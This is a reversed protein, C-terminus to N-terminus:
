SQMKRRQWINLLRARERTEEKPSAQQATISSLSALITLNVARGLYLLKATVRQIFRKGEKDLPKSNDKTKAYQVKTGYQPREAPYPSDQRKEPMEHGFEKRAKKVYDPM